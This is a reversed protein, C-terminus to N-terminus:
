HPFLGALVRRSNETTVMTEQFLVLNPCVLVLFCKLSVYKTDGGVGRINLCLIRM